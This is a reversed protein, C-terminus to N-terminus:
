PSASHPLPAMQLEEFIQTGAFHTPSAPPPPMGHPEGPHSMLREIMSTCATMSATSGAPTELALEQARAFRGLRLSSSM